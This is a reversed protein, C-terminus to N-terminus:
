NIFMARIRSFSMEKKKSSIADSPSADPPISYQWAGMASHRDYQAEAFVLEGIDGAKLLERAKAVIISSAFQSGVQFVQGTDGAVKILTHGDEVKQVMPKECYVHKGKRMADSSIKEHWHDTTANIIVDIDTRDLLQRYDKTVALGDGWLEKARRLRGDYLDCAAVMEVGEVMLATQTDGIGMGGTGILALRVKGNATTSAHSKVLNLYQPPAVGAAKTELLATPATAAAVGLTKLFTRRTAAGSNGGPNEPTPQENNTM